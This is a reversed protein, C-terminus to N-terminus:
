LRTRCALVLAPRGVSIESARELSATRDSADTELDGRDRRAIEFARGDRDDFLGPQIEGPELAADLADHIARERARAVERQRGIRRTLSRVRPSLSEAALRRAADITARRARADRPLSDNLGVAVVHREAVLGSADAIPVNFMLVAAGPLHCRSDSRPTTWRPGGEVAGATRWRLALARQRALQRAQSRAPRLWMRCLPVVAPEAPDEPGSGGDEGRGGTLIWERLRSHDPLAASFMGPGLAGRATRTRAALRGLLRQEADHRAVMLTVHVPRTQGIRDVRGARQELRAPNWPLELSVVWRARHQLNLGLSAVDTSLLVSASGNLFRDLERRREGSSQGGHLVACPRVHRLRSALADLSHRFETFVVAPETTRRLLSALRAIKTEERRAAEALTLLRRIWTREHGAALGIDGTLARRDEDGVDDDADFDLRPQLWDFRYAVEPETLWALRRELSVSLASATSLARKRFVSLLLLAADRRNSGAAGLAAQEFAILADLLRREPEAPTVVLWRAPRRTAPALSERTRRFMALADGAIPLSGLALLREFKGADGDHPTATLLILRRSTRAVTHGATHRGSDGCATHAEDIVVLDWPQPPLAHLVHPQKLYDLSTIWIGARRWPNEGRAGSRTLDDLGHRDAVLCELLFRARLEDTWQDRLAAPVLLLVRAATHRRMVEAIALGAQITKGLGVEDAILVRRVGNALALAPELQHPLIALRADVASAITRAGHTRSILHALRARASTWRAHRLRERPAVPAPRDFPALFTLRRDRSAVELRIVSRDRCAREVRWRRRRIWVMEGPAPLSCQV